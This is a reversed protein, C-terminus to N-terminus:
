ASPGVSAEAPPLTASHGAACATLYQVAVESWTLFSRARERAAARIENERGPDALLEEMARQLHRADGPRFTVASGETGVIERVADLDSAILLGGAELAEFALIPSAEYTSPLLVWRASSLLASKSNESVPGLLRVRGSLGLERMRRRLAAVFEPDREHGAFVLSLAEPVNRGRLLGSFAELALGQGKRPIYAGLCLVFGGSRLGLRALEAEAEPQRLPPAEGRDPGANPVVLMSPCQFGANKVERLTSESVATLAIAASFVRREVGSLLRYLRSGLRGLHRTDQLVGHFTLIFPQRRLRCLVAALDVLASPNGHLHVANWRNRRFELALRLLGPLSPPISLLLSGQRIQLRAFMPLFTVTGGNRSLTEPRTWMGARSTDMSIVDVQWGKRRYEESLRECVVGGGGLLHPPYDPTVLLLRDPAGPGPRVPRM